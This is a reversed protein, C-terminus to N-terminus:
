KAILQIDKIWVKGKEGGLVLSIRDKKEKSVGEAKFEYKFDKWDTTVEATETLGITHWDEQDVMANVPMNRDSSAKAKFSLVYEKGEAMKLNTQVAQVHWDTGSIEKVTIVIADAEPAMDAKATEHQELRWSGPEKAPKALNKKEEGTVTLAGAILLAIVAVTLKRCM